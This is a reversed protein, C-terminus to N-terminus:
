GDLEIDLVFDEPSWREIIERDKPYDQLGREWEIDVSFEVEQDGYTEALKSIKETIAAFSRKLRRLTLEGESFDIGEYLKIRINM